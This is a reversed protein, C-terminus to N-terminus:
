CVPHSWFGVLTIISGNTVLPVFVALEAFLVMTIMWGSWASVNPSEGALAAIRAAAQGEFGPEAFAPTMTKALASALPRPHGMAVIASRDAAVEASLVYLRELRRIAPVVAFVSGVTRAIVFRLPDRRAVHWGEHHLVAEVEQESLLAILSTSICIRPRIWGYAFAFPRTAEVVDVRELVGAREAPAVIRDPPSSLRASTAAARLEAVTARTRTAARIGTFLAVGTLVSAAAALVHVAIDPASVPEVLCRISPSTSHGAGAGLILLELAVLVLFGGIASAALILRAFTRDALSIVAVRRM